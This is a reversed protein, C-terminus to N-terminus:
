RSTCVKVLLQWSWTDFDQLNELLIIIPGYLHIFERVIHVLFNLSNKKLIGTGGVGAAAPPALGM